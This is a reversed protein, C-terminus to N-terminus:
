IGDWIMSIVRCAAAMEKRLRAGMKKGRHERGRRVDLVAIASAPLSLGALEAAEVLGQCLIATERDTPAKVGFELKLLKEVGDERVHLDPSAGVRIDGQDLPLRLRALIEFKRDSCNKAYSRLGSANSRLRTRRGKKDTQDAKTDLNRAVKLLWADDHGRRHFAIVAAIAESYYGAKARGEEDEPYKFERVLSLQKVPGATMWRVLGKLSCRKM